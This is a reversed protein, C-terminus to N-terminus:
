LAENELWHLLMGAILARRDHDKYKLKRLSVNTALRETILAFSGSDRVLNRKIHDTLDAQLEYPDNITALSNDVNMATTLLDTATTRYEQSTTLNFM